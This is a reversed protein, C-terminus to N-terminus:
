LLLGRQAQREFRTYGFLPFEALIEQAHTSVEQARLPCALHPNLAFRITNSILAPLISGRAFLQKVARQEARHACRVRM